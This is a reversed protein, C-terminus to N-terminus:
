VGGRDARSNRDLDRLAASIEDITVPQPTGPIHRFAPNSVVTYFDSAWAALIKRKDDISLARAKLVDRPRELRLGPLLVLPRMATANGAIEHLMDSIM